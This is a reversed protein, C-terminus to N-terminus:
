ALCEPAQNISGLIFAQTSVDHHSHDVRGGEIMLYYGEDGSAKELYDIAAKTLEWLAPDDATAHIDTDRRDYEYDMHSPEFLGLVPRTGWSATDAMLADLEARTGVCDGGNATVRATLDVGDRRSGGAGDAGAVGVPLFNQRGGGLAIDVVHTDLLADVLQTAIDKSAACSATTTDAASHTLEWAPTGQKDDDANSAVARGSGSAAARGSEVNRDEIHTYVAAPTAHTLRATTVVGVKKQQHTKVAEAFTEAYSTPM